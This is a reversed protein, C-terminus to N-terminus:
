TSVQWPTLNSNFKKSSLIDTKKAFIEGYRFDKAEERTKFHMQVNLRYTTTNLTSRCVISLLKVVLSYVGIIEFTFAHKPPADKDESTWVDFLDEKLKNRYISIKHSRRFDYLTPIVDEGDYRLADLEIPFRSGQVTRILNHVSANIIRFLFFSIIDVQVTVCYGFLVIVLHLYCHPAM